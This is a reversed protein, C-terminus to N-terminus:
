EILRQLVMDMFNPKQMLQEIKRRDHEYQSKLEITEPDAADALFYLPPLTANEELASFDSLKEEVGNLQVNLQIDQPLNEKKRKSIAKMLDFREQFLTANREGYGLMIGLLRQNKHISKALSVKGMDLQELFLEPTFADGLEQKFVLEHKRLTELLNNKNILVVMLCNVFDYEQDLFIFDKLCFENKNKYWANLWRKTQALIFRAKLQKYLNLKPPLDLNIDALSM